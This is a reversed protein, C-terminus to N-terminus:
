RWYGTAIGLGAGLLGAAALFAAIAYGFRALLGIDRPLYVALGQAGAVAAYVAAGGAAGFSCWPCHRSVPDHINCHAAAGAWLPRCGCQYVLGCVDVFFVASVAVAAAFVLAKRGSPRM